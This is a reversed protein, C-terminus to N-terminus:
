LVRCLSIARANKLLGEALLSLVVQSTADIGIFKTIPALGFPHDFETVTM